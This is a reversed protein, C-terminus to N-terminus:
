YLIYTSLPSSPEYQYHTRSPGAHNFQDDSSLYLDDDPSRSHSNHHSHSRSSAANSRSPASRYPPPSVSRDLTSSTVSYSRHHNARSQHNPHSELRQRNNRHHDHHRSMSPATSRSPLTGVKHYRGMKDDRIVKKLENFMLGNLHAFKWQPPNTNPITADPNKTWAIVNHAGALEHEPSWKKELLQWSTKQFGFANQMDVKHIPAGVLNEPVSPDDPIQRNWVNTIKDFARMVEHYRDLANRATVPKRAGPLNSPNLGFQHQLWQVKGTDTISAISQQPTSATNAIPSNSDSIGAQHDEQDQNHQKLQPTPSPSLSFPRQASSGQQMQDNPPQIKARKNPIEEDPSSPLQSHRRTEAPHASPSPRRHAPIHSSAIDEAAFQSWLKRRSDEDSAHGKDELLIRVGSHFQPMGEPDELVLAHFDLAQCGALHGNGFPDTVLDGRGLSIPRQDTGLRYLKVTSEKLPSDLNRAKSLVDSLRCMLVGAVDQKILASNVLLLRANAIAKQADHQFLDFDVLEIQVDSIQVVSESNRKTAPGKGKDVPQDSTALDGRNPLPSMSAHPVLAPVRDPGLFPNDDISTPNILSVDTSHSQSLVNTRAPTQHIHLGASPSQEQTAAPPNPTNKSAIPTTSDVPAANPTKNLPPGGFVYGHGSQTPYRPPTRITSPLQGPADITLKIAQLKSLADKSKKADEDRAKQAEQSKAAAVKAAKDQLTDRMTRGNALTCNQKSSAASPPEPQQTPPLSPPNTAKAHSQSRLIRDNSESM